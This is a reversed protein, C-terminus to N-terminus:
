IPEVGLVIVAVGVVIPIVLMNRSTMVGDLCIGTVGEFRECHSKDIGDGVESVNHRSHTSLLYRKSRYVIQWKVDLIRSEDSIPSIDM